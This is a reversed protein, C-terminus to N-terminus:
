NEASIWWHPSLLEDAFQAQPSKVAVGMNGLQVTTWRELVAGSGAGWQNECRPRLHGAVSQFIRLNSGVCRMPELTLYKEEKPIEKVLHLLGRKTVIESIGAGGEVSGIKFLYLKLFGM